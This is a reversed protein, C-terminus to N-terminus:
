VGEKGLGMGPKYGMKQLMSFGKNDETIPTCLGKDRAEYELQKKLSKLPGDTTKNQKKRHESHVPQKRKRVRKSEASCIAATIFKDSMYDDEDAEM